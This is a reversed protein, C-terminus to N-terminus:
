KVEAVIGTAVKELTLCVCKRLCQSFLETFPRANHDIAVNLAENPISDLDQAKVLGRQRNIIIIIIIVEMDTVIITDIKALFRIEAVTKLQIPCTLVQGEGDKFKEM